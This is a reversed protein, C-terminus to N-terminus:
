SRGHSMEKKDDLKKQEDKLEQYVKFAQRTISDDDRNIEKSRREMIEYYADFVEDSDEDM